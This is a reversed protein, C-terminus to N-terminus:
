HRRRRHAAALALAGLGFLAWTSPEPIAIFNSLVVSNAAFASGAGYNVQFTGFGDLTVLRQGNAVNAFAGSLSSSTLLTFTGATTATFGNAFGVNLQAGGLSATGSVNLFDYGFGQTAGGLEFLLASVSTLSLNGTLNLQGPTASSNFSASSPSIVGSSTVSGAVNGNGILAGAALNLGGSQDFQLTGGNNVALTGATQTFTSGFELTGASVNISGANTFPLAILTTGAATKNYVGNNAFTSISGNFANNINGSASDNFVGTTQNLFSGANGSRLDGSTWNVMGNNIFAHGNFDHDGTSSTIVNFTAGLPITTTNGNNFNGSTWTFTGGLSANGALAAVGGLVLNTSNFLGSATFTGGDLVTQGAGNYSAGASITGGGDLVLSGAAVSVTGANNFPVAFTTTGAATKNYTGAAANTFNSMGGNFANTMADSATDVFLANNVFSGANGSRLTGAMWNVTGNNILTHGNFDHDGSSSAIVNLMAGLPITTTNGNDFNGSTWTFTGGLSTDGALIAGGGLVLNTSNFLGSATFTGSDLVTQGAGNYSAGASITGGNDLVLSGAAINVTGANNFPVAFTTTGAATKHYTGAAANIFQSMGGNFANNMQSSAADIFLANNTFTGSNGSRLLGSGAAWNFTGNNVLTSGNFDFSTSSGYLLTAGSAITLASGSLAGSAFTLTGGGLTYTGNLTAGAVVLSTSTFSGSATFTGASLQAQGIGTYSAGNSITGGNNFLITGGTVNVVGSNAFPVNFTTTGSTKNYTGAAANTFNSMSGNFANNFQSSASDNLTGANLISGGNGSRLAGDVWDITGNNTIATGNFDHNASTYVALHGGAPITSATLLSPTVDSGTNLDGGTWIFTNAGLLFQSLTVATGAVNVLFSGAGDASNLRSGSAINAFSGALSASNFLTLTDSNQVAAYGGNIFSLQLAGALTLAGSVDIGDHQTGRTPGGLDFQSSATAQLTLNGAISLVGASSGNGPAVVGGATVTSATFTGTGGIRGTGVNLPNAFTFNGGLANLTGGANSFAGNFTLTGASVTITGANNFTFSSGVTTTGAGTKTYNGGAANTFVPATGGSIFVFDSSASDNWQNNNTITGGDGTRVQGATWNVTGNNVIAHQDFDHASTTSINLMGGSGITTTGSSDFDGSSWNLSGNITQSGVLRGGTFNLNGTNVTGSLTLNGGTVNFNGAGILGAGNAVAYNAGFDISAGALVNFTAAAGGTGGGDLELIGATVNVTGNNNFAFNSGFVTSGAGSRNYTGNNTFLPAVGGNIFVFNSAASDNWQGNNTLTGNDGSRLQGGTWNVTGNNIIAHQDFDHVNAATTIALTAGSGITTTGTNDWTGASWTLKSTGGFTQTGALVGGTQNFGSIAVTGAVTFTGGSLLYTGLGALSAGSALTYGNGFLTTAGSATNFAGSASGTGGGDLELTGATVNVTGNNNFAFNSGFVTSGAGSRTYTGNNTFVPAVGGNIFVFNSAASDNWQGNNTLTGNDGSRLQGGTWNVTGNNVIATADFDHTNSTTIALTAGNPVTNSNLATSATIPTTGDWVFQARVAGTALTFSAVLM